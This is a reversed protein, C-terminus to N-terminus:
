TASSIRPFDSSAMKDEFRRAAADVKALHEALRRRADEAAGDLGELEFIRWHKIIPM